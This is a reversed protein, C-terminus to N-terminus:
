CFRSTPAAFTREYPRKDVSTEAPGSAQSRGRSVPLADVSNQNGVYIWQPNEAPLLRHRFAGEAQRCCRQEGDAGGGTRRACCAFRGLRTEAIFIAWEARRLLRPRIPRRSLKVAFARCSLTLGAPRDVTKPNTEPRSRRM